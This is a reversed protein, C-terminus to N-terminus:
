NPGHPIPLIGRPIRVTNDDSSTGIAQMVHVPLPTEPLVKFPSTRTQLISYKSVSDTHSNEAFITVQQFRNAYFYTRHKAQQRNVVVGIVPSGLRRFTAQVGHLSEPREKGAEVVLITCDATPALAITSAGQDLAPADFIILDIEDAISEGSSPSTQQLLRETLMQLQSTLRITEIHKVPPGVPLLYLNPVSTVWQKLWTSSLAPQRLMDVDDLSNTLGRTNPFNFTEHQTPRSLNVDILMVRLGFQTLAHALKSAVLSTGASSRLGTVLISRKGQGLAKYSTSITVFAQEIAADNALSGNKPLSRFPVSGLPELQALQAVDESTKITTDLWDLLFVFAITLLLAMAAGLGTNLLTHAGKAIAPPVASQVVTLSNDILSEHIQVQNYSTSLADYNAQYGNLIDRQHAIEDQTAQSNELKTLQAQANDLNAKVIVLKHSLSTATSQDVALEKAILQQTFITAVANAINAAQHRDYADARVEIIPTSDLPSASVATELDSVTVGHLKKSVAQLVDNNTVELAYSVAAAQNNFVGSNGTSGVDNVQILASAEYVPPTRVSIIYTAGACILTSLLILWLWHRIVWAYHRLQM